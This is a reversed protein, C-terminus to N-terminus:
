SGWNRYFCFNENRFARAYSNNPTLHRSVPEYGLSCQTEPNDYCQDGTWGKLLSKRSFGRSRILQPSMHIPLRCKSRQRSSFFACRHCFGPLDTLQCFQSLTPQTSLQCDSGLVRRRQSMQESALYLKQRTCESTTASTITQGPDIFFSVARVPNLVEAPEVRPWASAVLIQEPNNSGTQVPRPDCHILVQLTGYAALFWFYQNEGLRPSQLVQTVSQLLM